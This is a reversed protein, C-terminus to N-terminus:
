NKKRDIWNCVEQWLAPDSVADVATAAMAKVGRNLATYAAPSNVDALFAEDHCRAGDTNGAAMPVYFTPCVQSVNGIDTSGGVNPDSEEFETEGAARLNAEMYSRLPECNNLDDFSNEFFRYSMKAGTMLEAGRAINIVKETLGNLYDRHASRIYFKAVCHSPVINPAVGGESIIGHMRVDPTVHQRLCNIGAFTLNCADLANIGRQPAAAAHAARGEFTFEVSDMAQSHPQLETHASLHMQLVLDIDDFAGAQILNIKGGITEEAPTGIWVARCGLEDAIRGLVVAAGFTVAAIWNHGCAHGNENKCPGYGPLADYEALFAIRPGKDGKEARFATEMGGYPKTVTFGQEAIAKALYDATWFEEMGLEPHHFVTDCVAEFQPQLEDALSFVKEKLLKADM